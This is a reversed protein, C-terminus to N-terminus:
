ARARRRDLARGRRGAGARGRAVAEVRAGARAGAARGGAARAALLQRDDGRRDLGHELRGRAGRDGAARRRGRTGRLGDRLPRRALRLRHRELRQRRPPLPLDRARDRGVAAARVRSLSETHHVVAFDVRGYRAQVRPRCRDHPDWASRPVIAPRGGGASAAARRAGGASAASRSRACACGACRGRAACSCRLRAGAGCRSARSSARGAADLPRERRRARLEVRGGAGRWEAGVLEFGRAPAAAPHALARGACAAGAGRRAFSARAARPRARRRRSGRAAVLLAPLVRCACRAVRMTRMSRLVGATRPPAADVRERRAPTQAHAAAGGAARRRAARRGRASSATRTKWCDDVFAAIEGTLREPRTRLELISDANLLRGNPLEAALMDADSFPHVPDRPHGIVLAPAEFTRRETRHPAIRGFFLGQLVAASPGPDQSVWDVM